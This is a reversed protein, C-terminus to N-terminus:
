GDVDARYNDIDAQMAARQQELQAQMQMRAQQVQIDAQARVHNAQAEAQLEAEKRQGQMQMKMQELPMEAKMKASEAEKCRVPGGNPDAPPRYEIAETIREFEAEVPKAAPFARVAFLMPSVAPPAIEPGAPAAQMAREIYGGIST